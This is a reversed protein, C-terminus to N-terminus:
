SYSVDLEPPENFVIWQSKAVWYRLLSTLSDASGTESLRYWADMCCFLRCFNVYECCSAFMKLHDFFQYVLYQHDQEPLPLQFYVNRLKEGLSTPAPYFIM